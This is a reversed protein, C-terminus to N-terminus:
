YLVVRHRLGRELLLVASRVADGVVVKEDAHVARDVLHRVIRDRVDADIDGVMGVIAVGHERTLKRLSKVVAADGDGACAALVLAGLTPLRALIGAAVEDLTKCQAQTRAMEIREVSRESDVTQLAARLATDAQAAALSHERQGRSELEAAFDDRAQQILKLQEALQTQLERVREDSRTALAEHASRADALAATREEAQARWHLAEAQLERRESSFSTVEAERARAESQAAALAESLAERAVSIAAQNSQQAARLGEEHASAIREHTEAHAARETDIVAQRAEALEARHITEMERLRAHAGHLENTLQEVRERLKAERQGNGCVRELEVLEAVKAKMREHTASTARLAEAAEAAEARALEAAASAATSAALAEGRGAEAERAAAEAERLAARLDILAAANAEAEAKAAIAASDNAAADSQAQQLQARLTLCEGEAKSAAVAASELLAKAAEIEGEYGAADHRHRRNVDATSQELRRHTDALAALQTESERRAAVEQQLQQRLEAAEAERDEARAAAEALRPLLHQQRDILQRASQLETRLM